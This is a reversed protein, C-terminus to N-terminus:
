FCLTLLANRQLNEALFQWKEMGWAGRNWRFNPTTGRFGRSNCRRDQPESTCFSWALQGHLLIVNSRVRLRDLAEYLLSLLCAWLNPRCVYLWYALVHWFSWTVKNCEYAHVVCFEVVRNNGPEQIYTNNNNERTLETYFKFAWGDVTVVVLFGLQRLPLRAVATRTHLGRAFFDVAFKYNITLLLRPRM